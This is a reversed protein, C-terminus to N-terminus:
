KRYVEPITSCFASVLEKQYLPNKIKQSQLTKGARDISYIRNNILIIVGDLGETIEDDRYEKLISILKKTAQERREFIIDKIIEETIGAPREKIFVVWNPATNECLEYDPEADLYELLSRDIAKKNNTSTDIWVLFPGSPTGASAKVCACLLLLELLFIRIM